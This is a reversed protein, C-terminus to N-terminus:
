FAQARRTSGDWWKSQRMMNLWRRHKVLLWTLCEGQMTLVERFFRTVKRYSENDTFILPQSYFGLLVTDCKIGVYMWFRDKINICQKEKHRDMRVLKTSVYRFLAFFFWFKFPKCRWFFRKDYAIIGAESQSTTLKVPSPCHLYPILLHTSFKLM